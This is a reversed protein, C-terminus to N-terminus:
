GVVTQPRHQFQIYYADQHPMCYGCGCHTHHGNWNSMGYPQMYAKQYSAQQLYHQFSQAAAPTAVTPTNYSERENGYWGSGYWHPTNPGTHPASPPSYQNASPPASWDSSHSDYHDNALQTQLRDMHTTGYCRQNWSKKNASPERPLLPNLRLSDMSLELKRAQWKKWKLQWLQFGEPDNFDIHLDWQISKLWELELTNLEHVPINSVESWSRNQFTNDDLFKSGLLLATTLMRYIQGSGSPYHGQRSLDTMRQALYYMGYLITSSPLRTSSLVQSVYKRFSGPVTTTSNISRAIDIDALCIRAHFLDYMGQASEAVFDVMQEMEYDLHAAVGGVPKEEKLPAVPKTQQAQVPRYESVPRERSQIPPLLPAKTLGPPGYTSPPQSDYDRYQVQSYPAPPYQSAYLKTLEEPTYGMAQHNSSM